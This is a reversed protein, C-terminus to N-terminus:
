PTGGAASPASSPVPAPAIRGEVVLRTGGHLGTRWNRLDALATVREVGDGTEPGEGAPWLAPWPPADAGADELPDLADLPPLLALAAHVTPATVEAGAKWLPHSPLCPKRGIFLPRAPRVLAAALDDLSPIASDPIASDSAQEAPALRVVLRVCADPHYDRRRRHIGQGGGGREEPRGRTTWGRERAELQANQSDTLIGAPDRREWRAGFVLRDQLAQHAAAQTRSWGLANAFLGTLMSAAPYDRTVGVADITVGGFAVLPAELRLVLWRHDPGHDPGHDPNAPDGSM